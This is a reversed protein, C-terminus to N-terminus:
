IRGVIISADTALPPAPMTSTPTSGCDVPAGCEIRQGRSCAAWNAQPESRRRASRKRSRQAELAHRQCCGRVASLLSVSYIPSMFASIGAARRSMRPKHRIGCRHAPGGGAQTQTQAARHSQQGEASPGGAATQWSQIQIGAARAAHTVWPM